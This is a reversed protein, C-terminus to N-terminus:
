LAEITTEKRKQTIWKEFVEKEKSIYLHQIIMHRVKKLSLPRYRKVKILMYRNFSDRFLPSVRCKRHSYLVSALIPNKAAIKYISQYPRLGGRYKYRSVNQPTQRALQAFSDPNLRLKGELSKGIASIRAEEKISSNQPLMVIERYRFEIGMRNRNKRYFRKVNAESPRPVHLNIRLLQQRILQYRLDELWNDFPLGTERELKKRFRQESLGQQLSQRSVENKLHKDSIIIVSEQAVIEVLAREILADIAKQKLKRKVGRQKLKKRMNQIDRETIVKTDVIYRIRNVITGKPTAKENTASALDSTEKAVSRCHSQLAIVLTLLGSLLIIRLRQLKKNPFYQQM